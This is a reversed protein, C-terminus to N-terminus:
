SIKLQVWSKVNESHYASTEHRKLTLSLHQWDSFGNLASLSSVSKGFIKCCFCYVSDKSTSYVLWERKIKEGNALNRYYYNDTFKRGDDNMPFNSSSVQIPGRSVLINVIENTMSAPWLGPDDSCDLNSCIVLSPAVNRVPEETTKSSEGTQESVDMAEQNISTGSLAVAVNEESETEKNAPRSLFKM